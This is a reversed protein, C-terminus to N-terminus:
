VGLKDYSPPPASDESEKSIEPLLIAIHYPPPPAAIEARINSTEM